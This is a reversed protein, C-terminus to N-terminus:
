VAQDKYQEALEVLRTAYLKALPCDTGLFVVVIVKSEAWEDLSHKSGLHDSLTFNQITRGVSEEALVMSIPLLLMFFVVAVIAKM